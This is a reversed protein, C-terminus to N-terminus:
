EGGEYPGKGSTDGDVCNPVDNQRKVSLALASTLLISILSISLKMTTPKSQLRLNNRPHSTVTIFLQIATTTHLPPNTSHFHNIYISEQIQIAVAVRWTM